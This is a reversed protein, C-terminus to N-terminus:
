ASLDRAGRRPFPAFWAAILSPISAVLVFVFFHRYGLREAIPGSLMQTPVLVLNMLATCFAYHAMPYKGPTIQQMMYLMNAVAAFSYGCKEIAVLTGITALSLPHTPAVQQSLYLYCLHPINMCVAMPFLARKLGRKAIFMGGLLGGILSVTTGITGDILGKDKLGLGVGGAALSSQLFLPAEVLLFGEGSRYLFVFTLMGLLQPKKVFDSLTDVFTSVAARVNAPRSAPVGVPLVVGHYIGLLMMMAAAVLLATSWASTAPMGVDVKLTGALWVLLATAFIRGVNWAMGQVGIFAAQRAEDLATVYIGDVCIDQTSSCFALIWFLGIIAQFHPLTPVRLVLAALVLLAAIAYEMSLVFFKKSKGMDLLAAWLPKLSWAIGISATALTIEGDRHGLDKFLTGAVWIVLAFPIGEAFYASPVWAAPPLVRPASPSPM